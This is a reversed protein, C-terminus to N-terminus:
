LLNSQMSISSKRLHGLRCYGFPETVIIAGELNIIAHITHLLNEYRKM